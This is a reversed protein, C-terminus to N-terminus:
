GAEYGFDGYEYAEGHDAAEMIGRIVRIDRRGMEGPVKGPEGALIAAVQGDIQRAQQNVHQFEMPGEPTRGKQGSYGYAPEIELTGKEVEARIYNGSRGYSSWGM